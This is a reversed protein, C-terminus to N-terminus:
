VKWHIPATEICNEEEKKERKIREMSSVNSVHEVNGDLMIENWKWSYESYLYKASKVIGFCHNELSPLQTNCCTVTTTPRFIEDVRRQYKEIPWVCM